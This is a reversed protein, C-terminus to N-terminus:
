SLDSVSPKKGIYARIADAYVVKKKLDHRKIRRDMADVLDTPLELTICKTDPKKM